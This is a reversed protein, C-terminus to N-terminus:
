VALLVFSFVLAGIVVCKDMFGPVYIRNAVIYGILIILDFVLIFGNRDLSSLDWWDMEYSTETATYPEYLATTFYWVGTFSVTLDDPQFNGM